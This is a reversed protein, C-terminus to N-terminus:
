QNNIIIIIILCSSNRRRRRKKRKNRSNAIRLRKELLCLSLSLMISKRRGIHNRRCRRSDSKTRNLTSKRITYKMNEQTRTEIEMRTFSTRPNKDEIHWRASARRSRLYFCFQLFNEWKFRISRSCFYLLVRSTRHM